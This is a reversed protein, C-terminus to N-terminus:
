LTSIFTTRAATSFSSFLFVSFFAFDCVFLVARLGFAAASRYYAAGSAAGYLAAEPKDNLQERGRGDEGSRGHCVTEESRDSNGSESTCTAVPGSPEGWKTNRGRTTATGHREQNGNGNSLM